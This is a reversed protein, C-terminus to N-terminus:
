IYLHVSQSIWRKFWAIQLTRYEEFYCSQTADHYQAYSKPNTEM